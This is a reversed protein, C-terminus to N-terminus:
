FITTNNIKRRKRAQLKSLMATIRYFELYKCRVTDSLAFLAFSGCLSIVDSIWIYLHKAFIHVNKNHNLVSYLATVYYLTLLLQACFVVISSFLLKIDNQFPISTQKYSLLHHRIKVVVILELAFATLTAIVTATSIVGATISENIEDVKLPAPGFTGDPRPVYGTESRFKVRFRVAM